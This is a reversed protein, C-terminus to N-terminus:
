YSIEDTLENEDDDQVPFHVKLEHGAKEIGKVLGDAFNGLKFSATMVDRTTEWFDNPVVENIGRDGIIAFRHSKVAVYILVGNRLETKDMGLKHFKKTAEKYLDEGAKEGLHVRIEGSTHNEAKGIAAVVELEDAESLIERIIDKL